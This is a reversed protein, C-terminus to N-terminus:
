SCGHCFALFLILVFAIGGVVAWKQPTGLSSFWGETTQLDQQINTEIDQVSIKPKTSIDRTKNAVQKKNKNAM